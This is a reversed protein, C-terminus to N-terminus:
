GFPDHEKQNLDTLCDFFLNFSRKFLRFKGSGFEANQGFQNLRAARKRQAIERFPQGANSRINGLEHISELRFPQDDPDFNRAVPPGDLGFDRIQSPLSKKGSRGPDLTDLV